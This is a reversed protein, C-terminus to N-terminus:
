NRRRICCEGCCGMMWGMERRQVNTEEVMRRISTRLEYIKLDLAIVRDLSPDAPTPATTTTRKRAPLPSPSVPRKKTTTPPEPNM